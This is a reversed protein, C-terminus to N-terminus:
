APTCHLVHQAAIASQGLPAPHGSSGLYPHQCATTPLQAVPLAPAAPPTPMQGSVSMCCARCYGALPQASQLRTLLGLLLHADDASAGFARAAPLRLPAVVQPALSDSQLARLMLLLQLASEPRYGTVSHM